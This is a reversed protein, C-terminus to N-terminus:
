VIKLTEGITEGPGGLSAVAAPVAHPSKLSLREAAAMGAQFWELQPRGQVCCPGPPAATASTPTAGCGTVSTATRGALEDNRRPWDSGPHAVEIGTVPVHGAVWACAGPPPLSHDFSVIEARGPM